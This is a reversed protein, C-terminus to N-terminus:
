YFIEKKSDSYYRYIFFIILILSVMIGVVLHLPYFLNKCSIYGFAMVIASITMTTFLKKFPFLYAMSKKIIKSTQWLYYAAQGYTSVVCALALGITKYLPYFVMMLFIATILDIIAGKLIIDTRRNAQLIATFSTVRVPLIFISILFIPVAEIYKSSFVFTFFDNRYFLLFCFSPFVIGSLLTASNEFLAKTKIQLDKDPKCYEVLMINGAAGAMLGFVPIEYSGNFYIAFEHLTLFYLIIWKDFWKFVVSFIDNLGLFLWQKGNKISITELNPVIGIFYWQLITKVFFVVILAMMLCQLSYNISLILLHAALFFISFLINTKFLMKEKDNKVAISETIISGNQIVTFCLLLLITILSFSNPVLFMYAIPVLNLLAAYFLFIKKNDAIWIKINSVGVSLIISPLGFLSIVSIVNIYLWASQYIAYDTVSLQRAYIILVIIQTLMKFISGAILLVSREAFKLKSM